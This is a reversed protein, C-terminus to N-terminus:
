IREGQGLATALFAASPSPGSAQGEIGTSGRAAQVGGGAQVQAGVGQREWGSGEGSSGNRAEWEWSGEGQERRCGAGKLGQPKVM